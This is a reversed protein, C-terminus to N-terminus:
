VAPGTQTAECLAFWIGFEEHARAGDHLNVLGGAVEDDGGPGGQANGVAQVLVFWGPPM